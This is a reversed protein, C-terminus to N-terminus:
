GQGLATSLDLIPAMVAFIITGVVAALMVLSLPNLLTTLGQSFEKLADQNYRGVQILMTDLAGSQEGSAILHLDVASFLRTRGLYDAVRGQKLIEDRARKLVDILLQNQTIQVVIDLAESLNVGAELLLGLTQTFRVVAEKRTFFRVIPIKLRIQDLM